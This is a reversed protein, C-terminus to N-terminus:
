KLKIRGYNVGIGHAQEIRRVFEFLQVRQPLKRSVDLYIQMIEDPDLPPSVEIDEMEKIQNFFARENNNM